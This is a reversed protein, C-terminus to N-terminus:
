RSSRGAECVEDGTCRANWHRGPTAPDPFFKTRVAEVNEPDCAFELEIVEVRAPALAHVIDLCPTTCVVHDVQGMVSVLRDRDDATAASITGRRMATRLRKRYGPVSESDRVVLGISTGELARLRQRCEAAIRVGIPVVPRHPSELLERAEVAHWHPTLVCRVSQPMTELRDRVDHLDLGIVRRHLHHEADGAFDRAQKASCEVFACKPYTADHERAARAVFDAFQLSDLGNSEARMLILSALASAVEGLAKPDFDTAAPPPKAVVAERGQRLVLVGQAHLEQYARRVTNRNVDSRAEVQRISPLADGPVLEGLSIAYRIQEQIQRYLPSPSDSDLTFRM